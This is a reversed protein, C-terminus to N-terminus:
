RYIKRDKFCAIFKTKEGGFFNSKSSGILTELRAAVKRPKRQTSDKCSDDNVIRLFGMQKRITPRRMLSDNYRDQRVWLDDNFQLDEWGKM